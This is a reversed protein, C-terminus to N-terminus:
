LGEKIELLIERIKEMEIPKTLQRDFLGDKGSWLVPSISHDTMATILFIHCNTFTSKICHAVGYGGMEPFSLDLLVLEPMFRRAKAIAELTESATQVNHGWRNLMNGLEVASDPHGDFILVKCGTIKTKKRLCLSSM